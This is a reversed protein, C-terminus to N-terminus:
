SIAAQVLRSDNELTSVVRTVERMIIRESEEKVITAMSMNCRRVRVRRYPLTDVIIELGGEPPEAKKKRQPASKAKEDEQLAAEREPSVYLSKKSSQKANRADIEEAKEEKASKYTSQPPRFIIKVGNSFKEFEFPTVIGSGPKKLREVCRQLRLVAQETSAFCLPTRLIEPGLLTKLPYYLDSHWLEGEAKWFEDDWDSDVLSKGSSTSLVALSSNQLPTTAARM